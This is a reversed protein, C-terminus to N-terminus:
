LSEYETLYSLYSNSRKEVKHDDPDRRVGKSAGEVLVQPGQGITVDVDRLTVDPLLLCDHTHFQNIRDVLCNLAKYLYRISSLGRQHSLIDPANIDHSILHYKISLSLLMSASLM